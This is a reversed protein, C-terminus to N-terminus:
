SSRSCSSRCCRRWGLTYADPWRRVTARPRPKVENGESSGARRRSPTTHVPVREPLMASGDAPLRVAAPKREVGAKSARNAPERKVSKSRSKRRHSTMCVCEDVSTGCWCPWPRSWRCRGKGFWENGRGTRRGRGYVARENSGSRVVDTMVSRPQDGVPIAGSHDGRSTEKRGQLGGNELACSSPTSSSCERKKRWETRYPVILRRSGDSCLPVSPPQERIAKNAHRTTGQPRSM